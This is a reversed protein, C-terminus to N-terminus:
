LRCLLGLVIVWYYLAAFPAPGASLWGGAASSSRPLWWHRSRSDPNGRRGPVELAAAAFVAVLLMVGGAYVYRDLEDIQGLLGGLGLAALASTFLVRAHAPGWGTGRRAVAAFGM